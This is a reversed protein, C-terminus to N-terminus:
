GRDFPRAPVDGGAGDTLPYAGLQPAAGTEFAPQHHEAVHLSASRRCRGISQEAGAEPDSGDVRDLVAGGPDHGGQAAVLHRQEREVLGCRADPEDGFREEM